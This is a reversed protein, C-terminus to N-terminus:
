FVTVIDECSREKDFAGLLDQNTVESFPDEVTTNLVTLAVEFTSVDAAFAVGNPDAAAFMDRASQVQTIVDDLYGVFVKSIKKGGDVDPTLKKLKKRGTDLDALFTDVLAIADAQFTVSDHVPLASYADTLESQADLTACLLRAYKKPSVMKAVAPGALGLALVAATALAVGVRVLRM